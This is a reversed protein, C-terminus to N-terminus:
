VNGVYDPKHAYWVERDKALHKWNLHGPLTRVFDELDDSWRKRQRGVRRVEHSWSLLCNRSWRSDERRLVHGAWEWKKSRQETVWTRIGSRKQHYHAIRSARSRWEVYTENETPKVNIMKRMMQGFTSSIRQERQATITWTACGFLATASVVTAFFRLRKGIGIHKNTLVKKYKHFAGWAKKM